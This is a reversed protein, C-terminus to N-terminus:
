SVSCVSEVLITRMVFYFSMLIFMLFVLLNNEKNMHKPKYYYQLHNSDLLCWLDTFYSRGPSHLGSFSQKHHCQSVYRYGSRWDDDSDSVEGAQTLTANKGLSSLMLRFRKNTRRKNRTINIKLTLVSSRNVYFFQSCPYSSLTGPVWSFQTCGPAHIRSLTLPFHSFTKPVRVNSVDFALNCQCGGVMTSPYLSQADRTFVAKVRFEPIFPCARGWKVCWQVISNFNEFCIPSSPTHPVFFRFLSIKVKQIQM